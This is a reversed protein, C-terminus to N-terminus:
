GLMRQSFKKVWEADVGTFDRIREHSHSLPHSFHNTAEIAVVWAGAARASQIGPESDEFVLVQWPELGFYKLAKLYGDPAPKSRPYDEAGLVIEFHKEIGLHQIAYFIERRNSGSVLGIKFNGALSQVAKVSGPVQIIDSKLAESYRDLLKELVEERSYPFKYKQFFFDIAMMWTRGAVFGADDKSAPVGWEQFCKMVVKAAVPETDILTGDLDFIVAEIKKKM